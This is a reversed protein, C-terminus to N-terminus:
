RASVSWVGLGGGEKEGEREEGKREEGGDEGEREEGKREEGGNGEEEGERM